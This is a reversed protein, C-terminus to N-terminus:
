LLFTYTYQHLVYNILNCAYSIRKPSMEFYILRESNGYISVRVVIGAGHVIYCLYLWFSWSYYSESFM